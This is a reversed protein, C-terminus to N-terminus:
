FNTFITIIKAEKLKIAFTRNFRRKMRKILGGTAPIAREVEITYTKLV